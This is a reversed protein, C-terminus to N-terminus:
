FILFDYKYTKLFFHLMSGVFVFFQMAFNNINHVVYFHYFRIFNLSKVIHMSLDM